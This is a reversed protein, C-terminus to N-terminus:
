FMLDLMVSSVLDENWRRLHFEPQFALMLSADLFRNCYLLNLHPVYMRQRRARRALTLSASSLQECDDMSLSTLLLQLTRIDAKVEM